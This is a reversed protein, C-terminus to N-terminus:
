QLSEILFDIARRVRLPMHRREPYVLWSARSRDEYGELLLVLRGDDLGPQLNLAPAYAIGLGAVAAAHLTPGSNARWPGGVSVQIAAGGEPANFVWRDRNTILCAHESLERPHTPVGRRDLYALSAACVMPRSTLKRAIFAGDALVGYRIAFDFGQDILDVFRTNFDMEIVIQPHRRAFEALLPAVRQEAFAGAASVRIRGALAANQGAASQNAEEIGAVLDLVRAHYTRGADTVRVM